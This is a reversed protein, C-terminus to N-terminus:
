LGKQLLSTAIRRSKSAGCRVGPKKLENADVTGVCREGCSAKTLPAGRRGALAAMPSPCPLWGAKPFEEGLRGVGKGSPLGGGEHKVQMRVKKLVKLMVRLAERRAAVSAAEDDAALMGVCQGQGSPRTLLRRVGTGWAAGSKLTM